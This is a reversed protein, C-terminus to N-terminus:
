VRAKELKKRKRFHRQKLADFSLGDDDGIQFLDMFELIADKYSILGDKALMFLDFQQKIEEDIFNNFNVALLSTVRILGADFVLKKPVDFGFQTPYNLVVDNYDTRSRYNRLAYFLFM